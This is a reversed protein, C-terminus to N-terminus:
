SFQSLSPIFSVKRQFTNPHNFIVDTALPILSHSSKLFATCITSKLFKIQHKSVRFLTKWQRKLLLKYDCIVWTFTQMEIWFCRLNISTYSLKNVRCELIQKKGLLQKNFISEVLCSRMASHLLTHFFNKDRKHRHNLTVYMKRLCDMWLM